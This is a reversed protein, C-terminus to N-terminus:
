IPNTVFTQIPLPFFSRAKFADTDEKFIGFVTSGSGSLSAFLAGTNLLQKQIDGIEPYTRFVLSEFDNEFFKGAKSWFSTLQYSDSSELAAAFKGSKVDGTLNNRMRSYAWKTSIHIPPIILLISSIHPLMVKSLIQGVGEAYQTGGRIFFPVDAGLSLALEELQSNPLELGYLENIGKLVTAANSSGGGLGAGIPIRKQLDIRVGGIDPFLKKVQLYAAVCLNTEDVPITRNDCSFM